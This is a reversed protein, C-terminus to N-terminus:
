EQCPTDPFNSRIDFVNTKIVMHKTSVLVMNLVCPNDFKSSFQGALTDGTSHNIIEIYNQINYNLSKDFYYEYRGTIAYDNNGTTDSSPDILTGTHTTTNFSESSLLGLSWDNSITAVYNPPPVNVINFNVVPIGSPLPGLVQFGVTATGKMTRIKITANGAPINSPVSATVVYKNNTFVVASKDNFSIDIVGSLNEGYILLPGETYGSAPFTKSLTPPLSDIHDPLKVVEFQLENSTGSSNHITIKNVGAAANAPVVSTILSSTNQVIPSVTGNFSVKDANDLNKGTLTIVDGVIGKLPSVSNLEPLTPEHLPETKKCHLSLITMLLFTGYLFKSKLLQKM